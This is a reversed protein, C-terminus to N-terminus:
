GPPLGYLPAPSADQGADKAADAGADPPPVAGYLPAPSADVGTDTAADAPPAGYLPQVSGGCAVATSVLAAGGFVMAARTARSVPSAVAARGAEGCFPCQPDTARVHRACGSCLRLAM